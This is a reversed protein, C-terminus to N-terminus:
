EGKKNLYNKYAVKWHKHLEEPYDEMNESFSDSKSLNEIHEMWQLNEPTWCLRVQEKDDHDFLSVPIIHDIDYGDTPPSGLKNIIAKYSINYKRASQIKGTTSFLRFATRINSAIKRKINYSTDTEYREKNRARRNIIVKARFEPNQMNAKHENSKKKKYEEDELWRKRRLMNARHVSHPAKRKENYEEKNEELWEKRYEAQCTSCYSKLGDKAILSKDKRSDRNFKTKSLVKNCRACRKMGEPLIEPMTFGM